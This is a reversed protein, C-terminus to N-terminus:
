IQDQKRERTKSKRSGASCIYFILIVTYRSSRVEVEPVTKGLCIPNRRDPRLFVLPLAIEKM